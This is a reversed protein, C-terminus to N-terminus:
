HFNFLLVEGLLQLPQQNPNAIYEKLKAIYPKAAPLEQKLEALTTECESWPDGWTMAIARCCVGILRVTPGQGDVTAIRYADRALEIALSKDSDVLLIGRYLQILPWPHGFGVFWREHHELYSQHQDDTGYQVLWRLLLHHQYKESELESQALRDIAPQLSGIVRQLAVLANERSGHDIELIARYTATQVMERHAQGEDSLKSFADLSAEFFHRARDPQGLFAAHQGYSSALQAWYRLGPVSRPFEKWRELCKSALAFEYRNTANVALHLDAWCVLPADEELLREGLRRMDTMWSQELEGFHNANALRATFWLLQLRPPMKEEQPRFSELWDIQRSLTHLSIAKSDFHKRIEEVFTRWLNANNRCEEGLRQLITATLGGAVLADPQSLLRSWDEARVTIGRDLWEWARLLQEADGELFCTGLLQAAKLRARSPKAPSGWTFALADVYGNFPSGTKDIIQIDLNIWAAREPYALALRRLVDRALAPWEMEKKFVDRNEIQVHITTPEAVPLLRTVWDILSLVGAVWRDGTSIPLQQVTLGLVGVNADLISQVVRDIEDLTSQDVAHWGPALDPLQHGKAPVLLGVWRGVDKSILPLMQAGESFDAGSEDIVLFWVSQPEQARIDQAHLSSDTIPTAKRKVPAIAPVSVSMAAKQKPRVQSSYGTKKRDDEEIRRLRAKNGQDLQKDAQNKLYGFRRCFNRHLEKAKQSAAGEASSVDYIEDLLRKIEKGTEIRKKAEEAQDPYTSLLEAM